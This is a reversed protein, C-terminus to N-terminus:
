TNETPLQQYNERDATDVEVIFSFGEDDQISKTSEIYNTNCPLGKFNFRFEKDDMRHNNIDYEHTFIFEKIFGDQDSLKFKVQTKKEEIKLDIFETKDDTKNLFEGIENFKRVKLKFKMPVTGTIDLLNNDGDYDYFIGGSLEINCNRFYYSSFIMM